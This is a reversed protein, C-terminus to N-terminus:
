WRKGMRYGSPLRCISDFSRFDPRAVSDTCSPAGNWFCVTRIDADLCRWGMRNVNLHLHAQIDVRSTFSTVAGFSALGSECGKKQMPCQVRKDVEHRKYKRGNSRPSDSLKDGWRRVTEYCTHQVITTHLQPDVNFPNDWRLVGYGGEYMIYTTRGVRSKCSARM